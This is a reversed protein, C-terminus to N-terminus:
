VSLIKYRYFFEWLSCLCLRSVTKKCLMTEFTVEKQM